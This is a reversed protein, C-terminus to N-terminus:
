DKELESNVYRMLEPFFNLFDNKIDNYNSRIVKMAFEAEDPLSTGKAMGILVSNIGELTQYSKLWRNRIFYPLIAKIGNPLVTYNDILMEHTGEIFEGLSLDSYWHWHSALYHDYIIDTVIGAYKHYRSSFYKKNKRVIPHKDTFNDIKRHLLLGKRVLPPYKLYEKGKIYDGIFNGLKIEDSNGSLYLHALFNM